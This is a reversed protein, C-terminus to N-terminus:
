GEVLLSATSRAESVDNRAICTFNGSDEGAVKKITLVSSGEAASITLKDSHPDNSLIKGNKTWSFEIQEGEFASCTFTSRRGATTNKSLLPEIRVREEVSLLASQRDESDADSVTCTYLGRDSTEVDEINLTSTRRLNAVQIRDHEHLLIGNKTWSFTGTRGEAIACLFTVSKGISAAKPRLPELILRGEVTLLTTTKDESVANSAICTYNGSDEGNVSKITFTSTEDASSIGIRKNASVIKGDKTWSFRVQEGQYAICTFAIRKGVSTEKPSIRDVRVQDEVTLSTNQRDESLPNSAICTYSGRDRVSVTEISLVSVKKSSSIELRGGAKLMMGDKTWSFKVDRGLKAKCMFATSEGERIIESPIAELRVHEEVSLEASRRDESVSDSAICTYKGRDSVEVFDISLMSSRRSNAIGIRDSQKLVLGDRTWQFSIKKGERVKCTFVASAGVKAVESPLAELVVNGQVFRFEVVIAVLVFRIVAPTMGGDACRSLRDLLTVQVVLSASTRDEAVGSSAICTYVGADTSEISDISITSSKRLSAIEIRQDEKLLIGDKTWSYSVDHGELISCTFTVPEGSKAEQSRLQRLIVAPDARVALTASTRDESRSNSAVCTFVGSDEQGVDEITLVSTLKNGLISYRGENGRLVFGNRTWSFAADNGKLATCAFAVTEGVTTTSSQLKGLKIDGQVRLIAIATDESIRNSAHCSYNGADTPKIDKINLTSSSEMQYFNVRNDIKLLQGNRLWSFKVEDGQYALCTFAIRKGHVTEKPAIRELRVTEEVLLQASAREESVSNSGTCTYTGRDSAQVGHLTLTSSFPTTSIHVRGGERLVVGDFGWNFLVDDGELLECTFTVVRGVKTSRDAIAGVKVPAEIVLQASVREESVKNQGICTYTGSDSALVGRISLTSTDQSSLIQLRNGPRLLSGDKSWSFSVDTGEYVTCMLAAVRGVTVRKDSIPELRVPEKFYVFTSVTYTDHNSEVLCEYTGSDQEASARPVHLQSTVETSYVLAKRNSPLDESNKKWNFKSGNSVFHPSLLCTLILTDGDRPPTYMLELIPTVVEKRGSNSEQHNSDRVASSCVLFAMLLFCQM